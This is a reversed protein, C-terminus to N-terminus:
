DNEDEKYFQMDDYWYTSLVFEIDYDAFQPAIEIKMLSALENNFQAFLQKEFNATNEPYVTYCVLQKEKSIAVIQRMTVRNQDDFAYIVKKNIDLVTGLASLSFRGGIGTCTGMYTGHKLEELPDMEIKLTYAIKDTGAHYRRKLGNLWPEFNISDNKKLWNQNVQHNTLYNIDGDLYHNLFKKFVRTNEQNNNQHLIKFAHRIKSQMEEISRESLSNLFLRDLYELKVSELNPAIEDFARKLIEQPLDIDRTIADRVKRTISITAGKAILIKLIRRQEVPDTSPNLKFIPDQMFKKLTSERMNQNLCGMTKLTKFFAKPVKNLAHFVYQPYLRQFTKLSSIVLNADNIRLGCKIIQELCEFNLDDLKNRHENKFGFYLQTCLDALYADCAGDLNEIKLFWKFFEPTIKYENDFSHHIDHIENLLSHSTDSNGHKLLFTLLQELSSLPLKEYYICRIFRVAIEHDLEKWPIKDFWIRNEISTSSFVALKVGDSYQPRNYHKFLCKSNAFDTLITRIETERCLDLKTKELSVFRFDDDSPLLSNFDRHLELAFKILEISGENRIGNSIFKWVKSFESFEAFEIALEIGQSIKNAFSVIKTPSIEGFMIALALERKEAELLLLAKLLLYTVEPTTSLLLRLSSNRLAIKSDLQLELYLKLFQNIFSLDENILLNFFTFRFNAPLNLFLNRKEAAPDELLKKPDSNLRSVQKIGHASMLYPRLDVSKPASQKPPKRKTGKFARPNAATAKPTSEAPIDNYLAPLAHITAEAPFTNQLILYAFDYTAWHNLDANALANWANLICREQDSHGQKLPEFALEYEETLSVKTLGHSDRLYCLTHSKM